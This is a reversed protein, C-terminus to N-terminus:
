LVAFSVILCGLVVWHVGVGRRLAIFAGSAMAAAWPTWAVGTAFRLAVVILLGVFCALAGQLATRFWKLRRLRDMCAAAALLVVFSPTFIGFTAAAAGAIGATLAGVFTATIVIPGPTVQGLAIGDMFTQKDMWRMKDVVEHLMLPVSAYGGGFAFLDIKMMLAALNFLAPSAARLLALVLAAAVATTVAMRLTRRPALPGAALAAAPREAGHLTNRYLYVGMVAALVVAGIPPGGATLAAAAVSAILVSRWDRANAASFSWAANAMIAATAARLGALPSALMEVGHYQGYFCSLAVMLGFAPLGFGLYAAAAGPPGGACLGAYAATQMATAGPISQCLAVGERFSADEVWRRKTVIVERIYAVTAPGGFATFGLRLFVLFIRLAPVHPAPQGHGAENEQTTRMSM